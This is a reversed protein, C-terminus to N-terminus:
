WRLLAAIGAAEALAAGAAGEVPTVRAGAELAREVLRETLRPEPVADGDGPGTEDGALLRGDTRISGEYRLHPDYILHSVRGENLAGVVESLGLAGTGAGLAAQRADHVLESEYEDHRAHLRESVTASLDAEDLQTLV